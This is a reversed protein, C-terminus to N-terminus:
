NEPKKLELDAVLMFHDSLYKVLRNFQKIRFAKGAFIYDIRLTPSIGAFSRGIGFGKKLFADQMDGRMADYTYSNPVDNLDACLLYPHPANDMVERAVDAQASRRTLGKRIKGLISKSNAVMSDDGSQIKRIRDYDFKGLQNSQLHTTYVRVTDDGLKLDAYMLVDPLTPRPYRIRGTDVFPIRSFIISSYYHNDGDEDFSFYYYPYGLAQVAIINNYYNSDTSTHFEQLCLVDADQQSILEFMKLRKQSGKNNNKKLEVFRAVNWSVVRLTGPKKDYNFAGGPHFAFVLLISKYSLLVAVGSILAYRPRLIIFWGAMCLLNLLLLFPFALSFLSIFWWKQPHLYPALCSILFFFVLLVNCIIFVRKTLIRFRIAM